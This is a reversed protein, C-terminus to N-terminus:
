APQYKYATVHGSLVRRGNLIIGGMQRGTRIVQGGIALRPGYEPLGDATLPMCFGLHDWVQTGAVDEVTADLDTTTIDVVYFDAPVDFRFINGWDSEGVITPVDETGNGHALIQTIENTQDTVASLVIEIEGEIYSPLTEGEPETAARHAALSADHDSPTHGAPFLDHLFGLVALADAVAALLAALWSVLKPHASAAWEANTGLNTNLYTQVDGVTSMGDLLTIVNNNINDTLGEVQLTEDYQYSPYVIPQQASYGNFWEDLAVALDQRTPTALDIPEIQMDLDFLPHHAHFATTPAVAIDDTGQLGPSVDFSLRPLTAISWTFPNSVAPTSGSPYFGGVAYKDDPVLDYVTDLEARQWGPAQDDHVVETSVVVSETTLNWLALQTPREGLQDTLRYWRLATVHFATLPTFSFGLVTDATLAPLANFNSPPTGQWLHQLRVM